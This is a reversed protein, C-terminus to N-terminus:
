FERALDLGRLELLRKLFTPRFLISWSRLCAEVREREEELM